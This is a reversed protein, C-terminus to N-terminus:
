RVIEGDFAKKILQATKDILKHNKEDNPKVTISIDVWGSADHRAINQLLEQSYKYTWGPKKNM